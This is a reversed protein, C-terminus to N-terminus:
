FEGWGDPSMPEFYSPIDTKTFWNGTDAPIHLLHMWPGQSAGEPVYKLVMQASAIKDEDGQSPRLAYIALKLHHIQACAKLETVCPSGKGLMDKKYRESRKSFERSQFTDGGVSVELPREKRKRWFKSTGARCFENLHMVLSVPDKNAEFARVSEHRLVEVSVAPGSQSPDLERLSNVISLFGSDSASEILKDALFTKQHLMNSVSSSDLRFSCYFRAFFNKVLNVLCQRKYLSDASVSGKVPIIFGKSKLYDFVQWVIVCCLRLTCISTCVLYKYM